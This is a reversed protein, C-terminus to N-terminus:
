YSIGVRIHIPWVARAGLDGLLTKLTELGSDGLTEVLGRIYDSGKDLWSEIDEGSISREYSVSNEHWRLDLGPVASLTDLLRSRQEETNQLFSQPLLPGWGIKTEYAQLAEMFDPARSHAGNQMLMPHLRSSLHLQLDFACVRTKGKKYCALAQAVYAWYDFGQDHRGEAECLLITDFNKHGFAQEPWNDPPLAPSATEPKSLEPIDKTLRSLQELAQGNELFAYVTGEPLRRLAELAYFGKRPDMLLLNSGRDLDLTDFLHTRLIKLRATANGEARAKWNRRRDGEKSWISGESKNSRSALDLDEKELSLQAERRELVAMRREGELGLSGPFYFIRNKLADPLYQQATWHDRYAHPYKYGEGHGFGQADRSADKLHNPVDASEDEVAKKADFYGMLSNSKPCSALYLAALSLHYQGEPLGIRDFAQACSYVVQIAQPDAMGVDEAASILMRRFIFGPDEGAYVMRALWYLSADPDSGRLSKIFASITDYHYDGDKDYLVVKRQISEEATDMGVFVRSGKEPPWSDVSTEVALELANLLSRADGDASKVLHELAGAEFEVRYDGYGRETNNLAHRAVNLLDPEQLPRLLFVRSRSVLARNVEFFPNETTAGILVVTGNEVWPLLADQQSKNWRHVEDVFLITRLSYLEYHQRAKEIAERLEAVGSLVANLACFASRTSNAIIRALTTKGTGPPGSLIISSLQDKQIARRLLRGPGVIHEQGIFEDLSRPRMRSALPERSSGASGPTGARAAPGAFLPNSSERAM